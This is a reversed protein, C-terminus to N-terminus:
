VINSNIDLVNQKLWKSQKDNWILDITNCNAIWNDLICNLERKQENICKLM